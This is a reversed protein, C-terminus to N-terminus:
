NVLVQIKILTGYKYFFNSPRLTYYFIKQDIELNITTHTLFKLDKKLNSSGIYLKYNSVNTYLYM